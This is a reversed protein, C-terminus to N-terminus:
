RFIYESGQWLDKPHLKQRFYSFATTKTFLGVKSTQCPEAHAKSCYVFRRELFTVDLIVSSFEWVGTYYPSSSSAKRRDKVMKRVKESEVQHFNTVLSGHKGTPHGIM